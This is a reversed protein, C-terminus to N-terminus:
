WKRVSEVMEPTRSSTTGTCTFIRMTARRIGRLISGPLTGDVGGYRAAEENGRTARHHSRFSPDHCEVATRGGLCTGQPPDVPGEMAHDVSAAVLTGNSRVGHVMGGQAMAVGVVARFAMKQAPRLRWQQFQPAGEIFAIFVEATIDDAYGAAAEETRKLNRRHGTHYGARLDDIPARLDLVLNSRETFEMDTPAGSVTPAQLMIEALKFKRPIACLFEGTLDPSPAAGFVGLQQLLFPQYLYEIGFKRGKTLPMQADRERDVLAEWGPCAADLVSSHAYWLANASRDLRADWAAKDIAEHPLHEIMTRRISCTDNVVADWGREDGDGSIFREHWVGVFTGNVARVRDVVIRAAGTAEDPSLGMRYAMASDMVQFPWIILDTAVDKDVDYWRYPTCTAARFGIADSYGISFEERIGNRALESFTDPVRFRLFHQRSITVRENVVEELREKEMRIREPEESSRYSPHIGIEAWKAVSRIRERMRGSKVGVAHDHASREGVLFHFISRQAGGAEALIAARAYIDYPDPRTGTLVAFRESLASINGRLLDRVASGLTRWAERGLYKFGNDVDCTFVHQYRRRSPPLSPDMMRWASELDLAWEDVLPRVHTGKAQQLLAAGDTRGHGDKPLGVENLLMLRHFVAAFIDHGFHGGSVPFPATPDSAVAAMPPVIVGSPVVQFAGRMPAQGYLLKPGTFAAFADAETLEAAEWGLVTELVHRVSYRAAGSAQEIHYGVEPM